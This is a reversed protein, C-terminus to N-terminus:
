IYTYTNDNSDSGLFLCIRVTNKVSIVIMRLVLGSWTFTCLVKVQARHTPIPDQKQITVNTTEFAIGMKLEIKFMLAAINM